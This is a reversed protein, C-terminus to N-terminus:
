VRQAEGADRLVSAAEARSRVGLKELINHVHNKVTALQLGLTRAIQKNSAGRCLLTGIEGERPTLQAAPAPAGASPARRERALAALRQSLLAATRASCLLEGRAACLVAQVVEEASADRGVWGAVGAEACALVETERADDVAFAVVRTDPAAEALTNVLALAGPMSADLLLVDPSLRAAERLTSPADATVSVVEMADALSQALGDRYLRVAAAVMGRVSAPPHPEAPDTASLSPISKSLHFMARQDEAAAGGM